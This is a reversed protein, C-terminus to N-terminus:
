KRCFDDSHEPDSTDKWQDDKGCWGWQSCYMGKTCCANGFNKGCRNGKPLPCPTKVKEYACINQVGQGALDKFVPVCKSGTPCANKAHTCEEVCREKTEVTHKDPNTWKILIAVINQKFNVSPYCAGNHTNLHGMCIGYNGEGVFQEDWKCVGNPGHAFPNEYMDPTEIDGQPAFRLFGCSAYAILLITVLATKM